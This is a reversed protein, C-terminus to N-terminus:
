PICYLKLTHVHVVTQKSRHRHRTDLVADHQKPYYFVFVPKTPVCHLVGVLDCACPGTDAGTDAAGAAGPIFPSSVYASTEHARAETRHFLVRTPRSSICTSLVQLEHGGYQVQCQIAHRTGRCWVSSYALASNQACCHVCLDRVRRIYVQATRCIITYLM